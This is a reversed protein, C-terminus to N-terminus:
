RSLVAGVAFLAEVRDIEKYITQRWAKTTLPDAYYDGIALFKAFSEADCTGSWFHYLRNFDKRADLIGTRIAAAIATEPTPQSESM